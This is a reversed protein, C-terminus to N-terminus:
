PLPLHGSGVPTPAHAILDPAVTPEPEPLQRIAMVAMVASGLALWMVLTLGHGPIDFEESRVM